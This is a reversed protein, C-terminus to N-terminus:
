IKLVRYQFNPIKSLIIKTALTIIIFGSQSREALKIHGICVKNLNRINYIHWLVYFLSLKLNLLCYHSLFRNLFVNGAKEMYDMIKKIRKTIDQAEQHVKEKAITLNCLIM